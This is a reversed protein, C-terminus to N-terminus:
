CFRKWRKPHFSFLLSPFFLSSSLLSSFLLFFNRASHHCSFFAYLEKVFIDILKKWDHLIPDEENEHLNLKRLHVYLTDSYYYYSLVFLLPYSSMIYSIHLFFSHASWMVQRLWDSWRKTSHTFPYDDPIGNPSVTGDARGPCHETGRRADHKASYIHGYSVQRFDFWLVFPLTNILERKHTTFPLLSLHIVKQLPM